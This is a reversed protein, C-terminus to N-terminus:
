YLKEKQSFYYLTSVNQFDTSTASANWFEPIELPIHTKSRQKNFISSATINFWHQGFEIELSLLYYIIRKKKGEVFISTSKFCLLLKTEEKIDEYPQQALQADFFITFYIPM